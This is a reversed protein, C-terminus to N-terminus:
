AEQKKPTGACPYTSRLSLTMQRNERSFYVESKKHLFM